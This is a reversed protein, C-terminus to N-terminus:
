RDVDRHFSTAQLGDVTLKAALTDALV